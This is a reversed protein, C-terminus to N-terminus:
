QKEFSQVIFLNSISITINYVHSSSRYHLQSIVWGFFYKALVLAEWNSPPLGLGDMLV